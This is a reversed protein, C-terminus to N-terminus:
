IYPSLSSGALQLVHHFTDPNVTCEVRGGRDAEGSTHICKKIEKRRKHLQSEFSINGVVRQVYM